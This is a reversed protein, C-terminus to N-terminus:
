SKRRNRYFGRVYTGDKRYYGKVYQRSSAPNDEAKTKQPKLDSDAKVLATDKGSQWLGKSNERAAKEAERYSDLYKFPFRTYAHGYGQKILEENLCTGDPLYIYALTRGYKDKRQWDYELSIKRGLSRRTTFEMAEKAFYQVPKRPHHLEPADVGILRIHEGNELVITDGDIVRKVTHTEQSFSPIVVLLIAFVLLLLIELSAPIKTNEKKM